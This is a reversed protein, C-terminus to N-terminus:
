TSLRDWVRGGRGDIAEQARLLEKRVRMSPARPFDDVFVVYRPVKQRALRAACFAAIDAETLGGGKAQPVLQVYAKVEEGVEPDAVGVVAADFVDDHSRLRGCSTEM